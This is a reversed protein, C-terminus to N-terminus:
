IRGDCFDRRAVMPLRPVVNALICVAVAASLVRAAAAIADDGSVVSASFSLAHRLAMFYLLCYVGYAPIPAWPSSTAWKAVILILHLLLLSAFVGLAFLFTPLLPNPNAADDLTVVAYSDAQGWNCWHIRFLMGCVGIVALVGLSVFASSEVARMSEHRALAARSPHAIVYRSDFDHMLLAYFLVAAPACLYVLMCEPKLIDLCIDLACPRAYAGYIAWDVVMWARAVVGCILCVIGAVAICRSPIHATM